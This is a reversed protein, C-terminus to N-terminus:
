KNKHNQSASKIKSIYLEKIDEYHAGQVIVERLHHRIGLGIDSYYRDILQFTQWTPHNLKGLESLLEDIAATPKLFESRKIPIGNIKQSQSLYNLLKIRKTMVDDVRLDKFGEWSDAMATVIARIRTPETAQIIGNDRMKQPNILFPINKYRQDETTVLHLEAKHHAFQVINNTTNEDSLKDTDPYLDSVIFGSNTDILDSGKTAAVGLEMVKRGTTNERSLLAEDLGSFDQNNHIVESMNLVYVVGPTNATIIIV